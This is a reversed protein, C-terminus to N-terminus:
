NIHFECKILTFFNCYYGVMYGTIDNLNLFILVSQVLCLLDTLMLVSIYVAIIFM